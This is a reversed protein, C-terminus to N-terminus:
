PSILLPNFLQSVVDSASVWTAIPASVAATCISYRPLTSPSIGSKSKAGLTKSAARGGGHLKTSSLQASRRARHGRCNTPRGTYCVRLGSNSGGLGRILPALLIPLELEVKGVSFHLLKGLLNQCCGHPLGDRVLFYGVLLELDVIGLCFVVEHM